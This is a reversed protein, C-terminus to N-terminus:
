KNKILKISVRELENDKYLTKKYYSYWEDALPTDFYKWPKDKSSFHIIVSKRRIERLDHYESHYLRNLQDMTYKNRARILNTYLLNYRLTFFKMNDKLVYNFVHQDMLSKDSFSEKFKVLKNAINDKRMKKLNLLMVGSNFYSNKNISKTKNSYMISTDFSAAGYVDSININYIESVDKRVIIDSDLYLVKDINTLYEPINFKQLAAISASLNKAKSDGHLYHLNDSSFDIISVEVRKYNCTEKIKNKNEDTINDAFIYIKYVTNNRKNVLLSYISVITPMVYNNDCIFVIHAVRDLNGDNDIINRYYIEKKGHIIKLIDPYRDILNKLQNDNGGNEVNTIHLQEGKDSNQSGPVYKLATINNMVVRVKVGNLVEMSWFWLDDCTPAYKLIDDVNYVRNNFCNPPYLVGGVGTAVHLYSPKHDSIRMKWEKYPVPFGNEDLQMLHARHCSIDYPYKAYSLYLDEIMFKDYIVDDDCTIIISNEYEKLAYLLKKYSRLNNDVFKIEVGYKILAKFESPIGDFEDKSLWIVIKDVKISQNLLSEVTKVAYKVRPPFTTMSVIIPTTRCVNRDLNCYKIYKFIKADRFFMIPHKVLKILKRNFM